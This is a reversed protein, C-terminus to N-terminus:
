ICGAGSHSVKMVRVDRVELGLGGSHQQAHDPHHQERCHDALALGACHPAGLTQALLSAHRVHVLGHETAVHAEVLPALHLCLVYPDVRNALCAPLRACQVMVLHPISQRRGHWRREQERENKKRVGTRGNRLMGMLRYRNVFQGFPGEVAAASTLRRAKVALHPKGPTPSALEGRGGQAAINYGALEEEEEEEEEEDEEDEDEEEGEEEEGEKRRM